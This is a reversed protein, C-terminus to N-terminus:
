YSLRAYLYRLGRDALGAILFVLAIGAIPSFDVKGIRMPIKKLPELMTQSAADTYNWIPHRGFYIYTNLLHLVLLVAAPFKWILYAQSAIILSEEFRWMASVPPPIIRFWVLLWSALWWGAATVILPLFIKVGPPWDDIRGLQMRVFDHVPKPGKLLSLFLLWSYFIGLTLAFSLVSFLLIPGFWNSRFTPSIVGLNLTAAWGLASGILWYFVARLFLLAGLVIPLHWRQIRMPETRRLTGALTAPTRKILPDVKGARWNLWLLLGAINLILDVWNM